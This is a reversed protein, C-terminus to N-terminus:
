AGVAKKAKADWTFVKSQRYSEVGMKIAVMVACGLEINCNPKAKGRMADIWNEEHDRGDKNGPASINFTAAKDKPVEGKLMDKNAERFEQKWTGQETVRWGDGTPEFQGKQGRIMEPVGVDNVMVSALFVSHTDYDATLLMTDAIDRGDKEIYQGGGSMVRRPYAGDPGHISLLLPALWHYMLDTAVGGNYAYYKRFRFFHDENYPIKPALNYKVGLWRDWDIYGDSTPPNQPGAGKDITWNFQGERSNRCYSGQSWVVPGIRGAKIAKGAEWWRNESTRQPGVQLVRGTKHVADRCELAQEITHSLPKEVYVDKGANMADIAIKTHWHDPTSILVANVDKNDLVKEYEMVGSSESGGILRVANNLRKRYVDCVMTLQINEAQSKRLLSEIHATGMGGTGIMGINIRDLSGAIRAWSAAPMALMPSALAASKLFTRRSVPFMSRSSM